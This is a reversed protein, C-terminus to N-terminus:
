GQLMVGMGAAMSPTFPSNLPQSASHSFTYNEGSGISSVIGSLHRSSDYSL